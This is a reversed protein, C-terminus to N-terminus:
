PTTSWTGGGQVCQMQATVADASGGQYYCIKSTAITCCGLLGSAPCTDSAVGGGQTCAAKVEDAVSAPEAV